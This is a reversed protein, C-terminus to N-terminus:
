VKDENIIKNLREITEENKVNKEKEKILLEILTDNDFHYLDEYKVAHIHEMKRREKKNM